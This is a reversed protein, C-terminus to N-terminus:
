YRCAEHKKRLPIWGLRWPDAATLVQRSVEGKWCVGPHTCGEVEDTVGSGRPPAPRPCKGRGPQQILGPLRAQTPPYAPSPTLSLAALLGLFKTGAADQGSTFSVYINCLSGSFFSEWVRHERKVPTQPSATVKRRM